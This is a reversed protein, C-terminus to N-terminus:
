SAYGRFGVGVIVVMMLVATYKNQEPLKRDERYNLWQSVQVDSESNQFSKNM